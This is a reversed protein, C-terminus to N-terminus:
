NDMNLKPYTVTSNAESSYEYKCNTKSNNKQVKQDM